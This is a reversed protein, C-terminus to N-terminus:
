EKLSIQIGIASCLSLFNDYRPIYKGSLMRAVNAQKFGTRDAITQHTIGKELAFQRLHEVHELALEKHNDSRM